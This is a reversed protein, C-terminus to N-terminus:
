WPVRFNIISSPNPQITCKNLMEETIDEWKNVILIPFQSYLTDLPSTIVIPIVSFLICEYVRHTDIGTGQPCIAFKTRKLTRYFNVRHSMTESDSHMLSKVFNYNVYDQVTCFSKDKFYDFVPQRIKSNTSILFNVLCKIVREVPPESLISTMIHHSTYQHDRFGLPLQIGNPTVSNVAFIRRAYPRM